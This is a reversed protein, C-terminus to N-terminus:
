ALACQCVSLTARLREASNLRLTAAPSLTYDLYAQEISVEGGPEGGEIRADEVELESRFAIRENFSHALYVVFRALNAEGPTGPGSLNHYQVEGYGGVSTHEQDQEQATALTSRLQAAPLMALAFLGLALSSPARM